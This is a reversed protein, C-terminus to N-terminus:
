NVNESVSASSRIVANNVRARMNHYSGHNAKIHGEETAAAKYYLMLFVRIAATLSTAEKKCLYVLTCVDNLTCKERRAIDKLSLWMEPELHVSTRRKGIMINKSVLSSKANNENLAQPLSSKFNNLQASASFDSETKSSKKSTM